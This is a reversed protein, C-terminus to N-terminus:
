PGYLAGNEALSLDEATWLVSSPVSVPRGDNRANCSNGIPAGRLSTRRAALALTFGSAATVEAERAAAIEHLTGGGLVADIVPTGLALLASCEGALGTAAELASLQRRLQDIRASPEGAPSANPRAAATM